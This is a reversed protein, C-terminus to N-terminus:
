LIQRYRLILVFCRRKGPKGNSIDTISIQGDEVMYIYKGDTKVVDSEDVGETMVNTTSYETKAAAEQKNASSADSTIGTADASELLDGSATNRISAEAKKAVDYLKGYDSAAEYDGLKAGSKIGAYVNNQANNQSIVNATKTELEDIRNNLRVVETGLVAVVLVAAM